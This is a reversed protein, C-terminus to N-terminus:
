AALARTSRWSHPCCSRRWLKRRSRPSSNVESHNFTGRQSKLTVSQRDIRDPKSVVFSLAPDAPPSQPREGRQPACPLVIPQKQLLSADDGASTTRCISRRTAATRIISCPATAKSVDNPPQGKSLEGACETCISAEVITKRGDNAAHDVLLNSLPFQLRCRQGAQRHARACQLIM